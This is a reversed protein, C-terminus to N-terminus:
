LGLDIIFRNIYGLPPVNTESCIPSAQDQPACPTDRDFSWYHVGALAVTKTWAVMTDINQLTTTQNRVDNRGIMPTLEMRAYPTGWNANQNKAAQIASLGMDCAGNVIVCENPTAAYAYNMVMLNITYNAVPHRQLAKMVWYGHVGLNGWPNAPTIPNGTAGANTAVTFSFRLAPYLSQAAAVQAVLSDVSQETYGNNEVDLDVGILSTSRYRDIFARMGALTSCTFVGAAGGASVIYRKGARVFATKNAFAIQDASWPYRPQSSWTERGCEGIAFAWTVTPAKAPLAQLLPRLPGAVETKFIPTDTWGWLTVDKYPSFWINTVSPPPSVGNTEASSAAGEHGFIAAAVLSLSAFFRSKM